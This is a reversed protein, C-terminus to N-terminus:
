SAMESTPDTLVAEFVVFAVKTSPHAGGTASFLTVMVVM